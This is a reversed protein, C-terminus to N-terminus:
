EEGGAAKLEESLLQQAGTVVIKQGKKLGESVFWGDPLPHQLEIQKRLFMDDGTEVYVFVEGNHRVLADRPVMVGDEAQGLITLWGVVATGPPLPNKKLLFLYGQGQSQPDASVVPGLFEAETSSEENALAAIRAGNPPKKLAEGLPLDVRVLATELAALSRVFATLDPQSAIPAGWATILKLQVGDLLIRDRKVAAEAAELVRTSVNQDQAHLVKLRQFEKTSADLAAGAAASEILLAALPSPDLVRGYGKVEPKLTAGALPAVKLGAHEQAEKDLRVFTQGNTHLVHSEEKLEEAKKEAGHESHKLLTWTVAAGFALGALVGVLIKTM